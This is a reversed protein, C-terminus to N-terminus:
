NLNKQVNKGKVLKLIEDKLWLYCTYHQNYSFEADFEYKNKGRYPLDESLATWNDKSNIIIKDSNRHEYICFTKSELKIPNLYITFTLGCERCNMFCRVYIEIDKLEEDNRLLELIIFSNELGKALTIM